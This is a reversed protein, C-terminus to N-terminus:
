FFIYSHEGPALAAMKEEGERKSIVTGHYDCIINIIYVINKSFPMTAIVGTSILASVKGKIEFQKIALGKWKQDIISKIISMDNEINHGTSVLVYKLHLQYQVDRWKHYYSRYNEFGVETAQQKTPAKGNVTVPFKDRFADWYIPKFVSACIAEEEERSLTFSPQELASKPTLHICSGDSVEERAIWQEVTFDIVSKASQQHLLIMTAVCYHRLSTKRSSSVVKDKRLRSVIDAM